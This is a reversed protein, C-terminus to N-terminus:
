GLDINIKDNKSPLYKLHIAMSKIIECLISKFSNLKIENGVNKALKLNYNLEKKILYRMKDLIDDSLIVKNNEGDLNIM